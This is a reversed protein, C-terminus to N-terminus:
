QLTSKVKKVRPKEVVEKVKKNKLHSLFAPSEISADFYANVSDMFSSYSNKDTIIAKAM